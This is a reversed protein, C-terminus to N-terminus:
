FYFFGIKKRSPHLLAIHLLEHLFIADRESPKLKSFNLPHFYIKIGDTAAIPVDHIFEVKSFLSLAGFFPSVKRLRLQTARILDCLQDNKSIM